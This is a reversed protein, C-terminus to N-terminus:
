GNKQRQNSKHGFQSSCKDMKDEWRPCMAHRGGDVPVSNGTMFSAADSALFAITAAVEDPNGPRGLAHTTKSRELFQFFIFPPSFWSMTIVMFLVRQSITTIYGPVLFIMVLRVVDPIKQPLYETAYSMTWNKLNYLIYGWFVSGLCLMICAWVALCPFVAVTVTRGWLTLFHLM